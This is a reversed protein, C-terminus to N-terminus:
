FMVVNCHIGCYITYCLLLYIVLNILSGVVITNCLSNHLRHLFCEASRLYLILSSFLLKQKSVDILLVIVSLKGLM